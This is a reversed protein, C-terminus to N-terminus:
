RPRSQVARVAALAVGIRSEGAGTVRVYALRQQRLWALAREQFMARMDPGDRQPGDPEWPLDPEALLTLDYHVHHRTAAELLSTDGFYMTSYIATAIPASDFAIWRAGSEHALELAAREREIQTALIAAQEAGRPARGQVDVFERLFEPVWLGPLRGALAECLVTKGTCEGGIVAIRVAAPGCFAGPTLDSM